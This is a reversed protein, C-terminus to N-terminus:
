APAGPAGAAGSPGPPATLPVAYSREQGHPVFGVRRLIPGSTEVRGKVLAMRADHALAYVLREALLTRYLGRGRESAVVAGGWLRAVGDVVTLGASAVPRDGLYAVVAGGAGAALDDGARAVYAEVEPLSPTSGGFVEAGVAFSDRATAVDVTWRLEVEASPPRGLDPPPGALDLAMVDLTEDLVGGRALLVDAVADAAGLRAWCVVQEVVGPVAEARAAVLADDVLAAVNGEPDLSVLELPHEFWDPFRVLQWGEGRIRRANEPVWVWAAAAAAVDEHTLTM